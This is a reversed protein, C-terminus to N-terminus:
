SPFYFEQRDSKVRVMQKQGHRIKFDVLSNFIL